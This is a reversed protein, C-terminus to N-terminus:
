IFKKRFQNKGNIWELAKLKVFGRNSDVFEKVPRRNRNAIKAIWYRRKGERFPMIQLYFGNCYTKIIGTESRM